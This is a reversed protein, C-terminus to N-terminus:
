GQEQNEHGKKTDERRRGKGCVTLLLGQALDIDVISLILQTIEGDVAGDSLLDIGIKEILGVIARLLLGRGVADVWGLVANRLGHAGALADLIQCLFPCAVGLHHANDGVAVWVAAQALQLQVILVLRIVGCFHRQPTVQHRVPVNGVQLHGGAEGPTFQVNSVADQGGGLVDVLPASGVVIHEGGAHGDRRVFGRGVGHGDPALFVLLLHEGDPALRPYIIVVHGHGKGIGVLHRLARLDHVHVVVLDGSDGSLSGAVAVGPLELHQVGHAADLPLATVDLEGEGRGHGLICGHIGDAQFFVSVAIQLIIDAVQIVVALHLQGGDATVCIARFIHRALGQQFDHLQLFPRLGRQLPSHEAHNVRLAAFYAREGAILISLDQDRQSQLAVIGHRLIDRGPIVQERLLGGLVDIHLIVLGGDHGKGVGGIAGQPHFFPAVGAVGEGANGDLDLVNLGPLGPRLLGAVAHHHEIFQGGAAPFDPLGCTNLAPNRVRVRHLRHGHHGPLFGAGGYDVLFQRSQPDRFILPASHGKHGIHGELNEPVGLAQADELRVLETLNQESVALRPGVPGLFPVGAPVAMYQVGGGLLHLQLGPVPDLVQNEKVVAQGSDM